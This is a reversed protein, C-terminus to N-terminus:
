KEKFNLLFIYIYNVNQSSQSGWKLPRVSMFEKCIEDTVKARREQFAQIFPTITEICKKKMEGTLLEGTKYTQKNINDNEKRKKEKRKKEKRKKEKRRKRKIKREREKKKKKKKSKYIFIQKVYPCSVLILALRSCVAMKM